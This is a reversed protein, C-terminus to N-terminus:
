CRLAEDLAGRIAHNAEPAPLIGETRAFQV